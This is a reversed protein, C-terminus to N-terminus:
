TALHGRCRICTEEEPLRTGPLWDLIFYSKARSLGCMTTPWDASWQAQTVFHTYRGNPVVVGVLENLEYNRM